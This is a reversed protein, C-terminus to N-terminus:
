VGLSLVTMVLKLDQGSRVLTLVRVKWLHISSKVLQAVKTTHNSTFTVKRNRIKARSRQIMVLKTRLDRVRPDTVKSRQGADEDDPSLEEVDEVADYFVAQEEQDLFLTISILISFSM